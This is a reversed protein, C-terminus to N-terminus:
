MKLEARDVKITNETVQDGNKKSNREILNKIETKYDLFGMRIQDYDENAQKAWNLNAAQEKNNRDIYEKHLKTQQESM